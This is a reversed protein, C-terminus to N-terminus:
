HNQVCQRQQRSHRSLEMNTALPAEYEVRDVPTLPQPSEQFFAINANISFTDLSPITTTDNNLM